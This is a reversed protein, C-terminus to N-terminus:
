RRWRLWWEPRSRRFWQVFGRRERENLREQQAAMHEVAREIEPNPQPPVWNGGVDSPASAGAPVDHEDQPKAERNM